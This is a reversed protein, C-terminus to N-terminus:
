NEIDPCEELLCASELRNCEMQAVIGALDDDGISGAKINNQKAWNLFWDSAEIYGKLYASLLRPEDRHRCMFCQCGEKIM